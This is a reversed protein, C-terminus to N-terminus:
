SNFKKALRNVADQENCEWLIGALIGITAEDPNVQTWDLLIQYIVEKLSTKIHVEYFQDIQGDSLDLRRAMDRWGKGIHTSAFMMIRTTLPNKCMMLEKIAESKEVQESNTNDSKRNQASNSKDNQGSNVNVKTPDSSPKNNVHVVYNSGIQLNTANTINYQVLKQAGKNTTKTKNSKPARTKYTPPSPSNRSPIEDVKEAPKPPNKRPERNKSAEHPKSDPVADTTINEDDELDHTCSM